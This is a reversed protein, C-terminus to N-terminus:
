AARPDGQRGFRTRLLTRCTERALAAADGAPDGGLLSLLNENRVDKDIFLQAAFPAVSGIAQNVAGGAFGSLADRLLDFSGRDVYLPKIASKRRFQPDERFTEFALDVLEGLRLSQDRRHAVHYVRRPEGRDLAASISDVVFDGTVLYVPTAPSGPLTSIFGYYLLQLTNHVANHQTVEGAHNDALVTAVRLTLWPLRDFGRVLEAEAKWKSREYENAFGAEPLPAEPIVGAALGSAYVTSLLLLRELNECREAFRFLKVAGDVNVAQATASDVNFRTVAAGHVIASISSPDVGDFPSDHSLDGFRLEVEPNPLGLTASLAATKRAREEETSARVWLCLSTGRTMLRAALRFGLYGDAGTVLVRTKVGGGLARNAV